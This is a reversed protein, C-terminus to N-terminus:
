RRWLVGNTMSRKVYAAFIEPEGSIVAKFVALQKADDVEIMQLDTMNKIFDKQLNLVEIEASDGEYVDNGCAVLLFASMLLYVCLKM